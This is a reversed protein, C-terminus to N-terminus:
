TLGYGRYETSLRQTDLLAAHLDPFSLWIRRGRRQEVLTHLACFVHRGTCAALLYLMATGHM